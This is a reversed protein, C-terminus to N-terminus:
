LFFFHYLIRESATNTIIITKSMIGAVLVSTAEKKILSVEKGGDVKFLSSCNLM